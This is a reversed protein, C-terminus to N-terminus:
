LEIQSALFSPYLEKIAMFELRSKLINSLAYEPIQTCAMFFLLARAILM